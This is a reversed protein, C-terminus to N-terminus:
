VSAPIVVGAVAVSWAGHRLEAGNGGGDIAPPMPTSASTAQPPPPPRSLLVSLPVSLPLEPLEPLPLQLSIGSSVLPGNGASPECDPTVLTSSSARTM